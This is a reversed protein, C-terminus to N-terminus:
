EGKSFALKLIEIAREQGQEGYEAGIQRFTDLMLMEIATINEIQIDTAGGSYDAVTYVSDSTVGLLYDISVGFYQAMKILTDYDAQRDGNEYNCYTQRNIGIKQAVYAQTRKGRLDKLRLM